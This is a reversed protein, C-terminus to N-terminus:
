LGALRTIRRKPYKELSTQSYLSDGRFPTRQFVRIFVMIVYSKLYYYAELIHGIQNSSFKWM